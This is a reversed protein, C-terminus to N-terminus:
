SVIMDVQFKRKGGEKPYRAKTSEQLESWRFDFERQTIPKGNVIVLVPSDQSAPACGAFALVLCALLGGMMIFVSHHIRFASDVRAEETLLGITKAIM